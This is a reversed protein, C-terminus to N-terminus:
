PKGGPIAKLPQATGYKKQRAVASAKGGKSGNAVREPAKVVYPQHEAWEHLRYGDETKDIFGIRLLAGFLDGPEGSWDVAHEISVPNPPLEGTISNAAAWSWLDILALVGEAGLEDFLRQRKPNMRFQTSIRYDSNM